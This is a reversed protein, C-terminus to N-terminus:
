RSTEEMKNVQTAARALRELAIFSWGCVDLLEQEIEGVLEGPPRGFSRDGYAARGAELRQRVREAFAPWADLPSAAPAGAVKVRKWVRLCLREVFMAAREPTAEWSTAVGYDALIAILTGIVSNPNIRSQYRHSLVDNVTGEVVIVKVEFDRMRRCCDIFRERENGCCNALDDLSKREICLKDSAGVVSYDGTSLTAAQVAVASSFRLPRQERTDVLITPTEDGSM